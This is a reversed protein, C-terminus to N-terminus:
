ELSSEALFLAHLTSCLYVLYTLVLLLKRIWLITNTEPQRCKICPKSKWIGQIRVSALHIYVQSSLFPDNVALTQQHKQEVEKDLFGSDYQSKHRELLKWLSPIPSQKRKEFFPSSRTGTTKDCPWEDCGIATEDCDTRWVLTVLDFAHKTDLVKNNSSLSIMLAIASTAQM